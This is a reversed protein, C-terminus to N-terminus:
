RSSSSTCVHWAIVVMPCCVGLRRPGGRLSGSATVPDLVPGNRVMRDHEDPLRIRKRSLLIVGPRGTRYRAPWDSAVPAAGDVVSRVGTRRGRLVGCVTPAFRRAIKDVFRRQRVRDPDPEHCRQARRTATVADGLKESLVRVSAPQCGTAPVDFYPTPHVPRRIRSRM